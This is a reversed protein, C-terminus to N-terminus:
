VRSGFIGTGIRVMTSGEEIAVEFDHTMGMSLHDLLVNHRHKENIDIFIRRMNAFYVRNNYPNEVYPAVCMLGRVRLHTFELINELFEAVEDPAIGHKSEEGAINVEILVDMQKQIAAACKDITEALRISDLSHIMVAKDVTM